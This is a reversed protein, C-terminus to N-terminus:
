VPHWTGGGSILSLAEVYQASSWCREKLTPSFPFLSRSPAQVVDVPVLRALFIQQSSASGFFTGASSLFPRQSTVAPIKYTSGGCPLSPVLPCTIATPDMPEMGVQLQRHRLPCGGRQSSCRSVKRFFCLHPATRWAPVLVTCGVFGSLGNTRKPM